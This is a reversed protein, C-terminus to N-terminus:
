QLRPGASYCLGQSFDRRHQILTHGIPQKLRDLRVLLFAPFLGGTFHSPDFGLFDHAARDAKPEIGPM